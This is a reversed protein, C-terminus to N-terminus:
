HGGGLRQGIQFGHAGDSRERRGGDAPREVTGCRLQPNVYDSRRIEAM